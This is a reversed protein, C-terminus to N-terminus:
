VGRLRRRQPDAGWFPFQVPNLFFPVYKTYKEISLPLSQIYTQLDKSFWRIFASLRNDQGKKRRRWLIGIVKFIIIAPSAQHVRM